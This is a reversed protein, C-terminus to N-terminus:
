AGKKVIKLTIFCSKNILGADIIKEFIPYAKKEIDILSITRREQESKTLVYDGYVGNPAQLLDNKLQELKKSLRDQRQKLKFYTEAKTKTNIMYHNYHM